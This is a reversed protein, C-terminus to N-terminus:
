PIDLGQIDALDDTRGTARTNGIDDDLDHRDAETAALQRNADTM